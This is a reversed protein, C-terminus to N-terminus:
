GWVVLWTLLRISWWIYIYIYVYIYIYIHIYIYNLSTKGNTWFTIPRREYNYDYSLVFIRLSTAKIGRKIWAKARPSRWSSYTFPYIFSIYHIFLLHCLHAITTIFIQYYIYSLYKSSRINYKGLSIYIIISKFNFSDLLFPHYTYM